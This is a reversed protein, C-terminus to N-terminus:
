FPRVGLCMLQVQRIRVAFRAVLRDCNKEGRGGAFVLALANGSLLRGSCMVVPAWCRCRMSRVSAELLPAELHDRVVGFRSKCPLSRTLGLAALGLRTVVACVKCRLREVCGPGSDAPVNEARQVPVSDDRYTCCLM